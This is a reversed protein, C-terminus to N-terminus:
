RVDIAYHRKSMSGSPHITDINLSDSGTYGPAPEYTVVVGESKRKNCEFRVNNEPFSTFGTGNAVTLKGHKPQEIIRVTAYGASSCDPNIDYFFALRLKQDTAVTRAVEITKPQAPVAASDAAGTTAAVKTPTITPATSAPASGTTVPTTAVTAPRQFAYTTNVDRRVATIAGMLRSEFEPECTQRKVLSIFERHIKFTRGEIKYTAHYAFGENEIAVAAPAVPMPQSGEFTAEIDETQTGAYCAYALTRNNPFGGLLFGGPRVTLPMGVPIAARGGPNPAAFKGNLVFSEEVVVPDSAETANGLDFRGNGPTGWTQLQMRAANDSGVNQISMAGIRLPVALIGTNREVTQGTVTGDEAITITTRSSAIHDQPAMAPTRRVTAGQASVHVVPKDYSEAALVGFGAISATPDDYLDFEPLYLIAHNLMAMTPPEPLTYANGLNILVQESAIGKAALLASMLTAKDKCDGFKNRLVSAAENPVVRGLSLYVAVYRINKKMWADIARAQERRDTIGRTIEQALAAIEPTAAAKPLAAAGYARGLDVYSKFTSVLLMPDVDTTAVSGAELFKTMRPPLTVTHRRVKGFDEVRDNLGGAAKVQLGLDIPAEVIVEASDFPLNRPFVDTSFFQGPFMGRLTEKRLTLVLTDGVRVDQFIVTRQKLDRTFTSSQGSAADGTLINAPDVPVRTGDPRETYAEVVDLNEMGQVYRDAQESVLNIASPTLIKFRRTVLETATRDSRVTLRSQYAVTYPVQTAQPSATQPADPSANRVAANPTANQPEASAPGMGIQGALIAAPLVATLIRLRTEKIGRNM